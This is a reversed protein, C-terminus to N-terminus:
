EFVILFIGNVTQPDHAAKIKAKCPTKKARHPKKKKRPRESIHPSVNPPELAIKPPEGNTNKTQRKPKHTAKQKAISQLAEFKSQVPKKHRQHYEKYPLKGAGQLRNIKAIFPM